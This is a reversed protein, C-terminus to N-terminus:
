AAAKRNLRTHRHFANTIKQNTESAISKTERRVICGITDPDSGIERAAARVSGLEDILTGLRFLIRYNVPVPQPKCPIEDPDHPNNWDAPMPWQHAAVTPMAPRKVELGCTEWLKEIKKATDPHIYDWAQDCIVALSSDSLGSIEALESLRWGAARLSRIMRSYGLSPKKNSAPPATLAQVATATNGKVTTQEGKLIRYLSRTSIGTAATIGAKTAGSNLLHQIHTRTPEAPVRHKFIGQAFAHADCFGQGTHRQQRSCGPRICTPKNPNM